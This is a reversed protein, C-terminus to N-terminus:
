QDCCTEAAVVVRLNCCSWISGVETFPTAQSVLYPANEDNGELNHLFVSVAVMNTYLLMSAEKAIKM